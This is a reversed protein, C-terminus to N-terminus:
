GLDLLDTCDAITEADPKIYRMASRPNRHRTKAMITQLEV